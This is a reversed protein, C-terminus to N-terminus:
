LHQDNSVGKRKNIEPDRDYAVWGRKYQDFPAVCIEPRNNFYRVFEETCGYYPVWGDEYGTANNLWHIFVYEGKCQQLEKVDLPMLEYKMPAIEHRICLLGLLGLLFLMLTWMFDYQKLILGITCTCLSVAMATISLVFMVCHLVDLQTATQPIRRMRPDKDRADRNRFMDVFEHKTM